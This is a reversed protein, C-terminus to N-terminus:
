TRRPTFTTGLASPPLKSICTLRGHQLLVVEHGRGYSPPRGFRDLVESDSMLRLTDRKNVGCTIKGHYIPANEQPDEIQRVLRAALDRANPSRQSDSSELVEFVIRM